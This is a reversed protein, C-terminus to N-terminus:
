VPGSSSLNEEAIAAILGGLREQLRERLSANTRVQEIVAQKYQYGGEWGLAKCVAGLAQTKKMPYRAVLHMLDEDALLRKFGTLEDSRQIPVCIQEDPLDVLEKASPIRERLANVMLRHVRENVLYEQTKPDAFIKLLASRMKDAIVQHDVGITEAHSMAVTQRVEESYLLSEISWANLVFINQQLLANVEGDSQCDGDVLGVARVDHLNSTSNVGIVARRVEEVGGKPIVSVDTNEIIAEYLQQDIGDSAGEVFVVIERAGLVDRRLDEPLAGGPELTGIMWSVPRRNEWKAGRLLLNRSTPFAAPLSLEHTSIVWTCDSREKVLATLLPVSIARHLHREPEDILLIQNPKAVLVQAALIMAAREGDSMEAIGYQVSTSTRTVLLEGDKSSGIRISMRGIDLLRNLRMLPAREQESLIRAREIDGEELKATIERARANEMAVLDYLALNIPSHGYQDRWRAEYGRNWDKVIEEEHRRGSATLDIGSSSMWTQRHASVRTVNEHTLELALYHLLASKGSGNSGVIFMPVGPVLNLTTPPGDPSPIQLQPM